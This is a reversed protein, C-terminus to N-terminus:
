EVIFRGVGIGHTPMFAKFFYIGPKLDIINVQMTDFACNTATTVLRGSVDFIRVHAAEGNIPVEINLVAKAPNPWAKATFVPISEKLSTTQCFPNLSLFNSNLVPSLYSILNMPIHEEQLANIARPFLWGATSGIGELFQGSYWSPQFSDDDGVEAFTQSWVMQGNLDLTATDLIVIDFYPSSPNAYFASDVALQNFTDLAMPYRIQLTDGPMLGFNYLLYLSDGEQYYVKKDDQCVTIKSVLGCGFDGWSYCYTVRLERCSLTDFHTEAVSEVVLTDYGETGGLANVAYCYVWKSGVPAFTQAYTQFIFCTFAFVLVKSKM